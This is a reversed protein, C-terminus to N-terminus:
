RVYICLTDYMVYMCVYVVCLSMCLMFLMSVYMDYMRVCVCVMCVYTCLCIVYM